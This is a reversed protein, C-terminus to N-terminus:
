LLLSQILQFACAEADTQYFVLIGVEEHDEGEKKKKKKQLNNTAVIKGKNLTTHFMSTSSFGM